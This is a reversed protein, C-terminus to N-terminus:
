RRRRHTIVRATWALFSMTGAPVYGKRIRKTSDSPTGTAPSSSTPAEPSASPDTLLTHNSPGTGGADPAACSNLGTMLTMGDAGLATRRSLSSPSQSSYELCM